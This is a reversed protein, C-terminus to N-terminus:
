MFIALMLPLLSSILFDPFWHFINTHLLSSLGAPGVAEATKWLALFFNTESKLQFFVQVNVQPVLERIFLTIKTEEGICRSVLFIVILFFGQEGTDKFWKLEIFFFSANIFLSFVVVLCAGVHLYIHFFFQLLMEPRGSLFYISLDLSISTQM